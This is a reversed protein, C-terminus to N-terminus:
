HPIPQAEGAVVEGPVKDVNLEHLEEAEEQTMTTTHLPADESHPAGQTTEAIDAMATHEEKTLNVTM